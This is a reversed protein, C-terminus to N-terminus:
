VEGGILLAAQVRDLSADVCAAHRRLAAAAEELAAATREVRGVETALMRQFRMASVSQWAVRGTSRAQAALDRADGAAFAVRAAAVRIEDGGM